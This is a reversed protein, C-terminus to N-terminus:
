PSTQNSGSFYRVVTWVGLILAVFVSMVGLSNALQLPRRSFTFIATSALRLMKRMTYKTTGAFRPMRVYRFPAQSYGLWAIIGRVYKNKEPFRKYGEIVQRDILRFDGADVPIPYEALKGLVRCFLRATALKIPSEGKRSVRQGSVVNYGEKEHMRIMAPIVEPPDQLDADIIVALDGGCHEIGASVASQHGFNRSFTIVKIRSDKQSLRSLLTPTGDESGDDVCLIEYHYGTSDLTSTLRALTELIVKEENYCPMIVSLDM